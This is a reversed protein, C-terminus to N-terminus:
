VQNPVKGKLMYAFAIVEAVAVYLERPIEQNLKLESLLETLEPEERIPINHERAIALIEEAIEAVGKASLVPASIGDYTLAVVKNPTDEIENM